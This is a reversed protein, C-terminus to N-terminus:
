HPPSSERLKPQQSLSNELPIVATPFRISEKARVNGHITHHGEKATKYVTPPSPLTAPCLPPWIKLSNVNYMDSLLHQSISLSLHSCVSFLNLSNLTTATFLKYVFRSYADPILSISSSFAHFPVSPSIASSTFFSDGCLENSFIGFSIM